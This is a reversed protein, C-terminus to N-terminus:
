HLVMRRPSISSLRLTTWPRRIFEVDRWVLQTTHRQAELKVEVAVLFRQQDLEDKRMYTSGLQEADRELVEDHRGIVLAPVNYGQARLALQLGNYDGLELETVLLDTRHELRARATQYSHATVVDWGSLKLWACLKTALSPTAAVVLASRSRHM